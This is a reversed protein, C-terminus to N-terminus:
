SAPEAGAPFAGEGILPVFRCRGLSRQSLRDGRRTVVLLEQEFRSGVPIVLRGCDALQRTLVEPVAPAAATVLIADFPAEAAAGLLPGAPRCRVNRVGLRDLTARARRRLGDIREVTVVERAIQALVAAQYGSGTGVELVREDGTLAAAESMMGVILPQSITQGGGIALPTDDYAYRRLGSPVFAERPVARLAALVRPDRVQGAVRRIMREVAREDRPPLAARGNASGGRSGNNSPSGFRM